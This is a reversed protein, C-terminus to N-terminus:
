NDFSTYIFYQNCTSQPYQELSNISVCGCFGKIIMIIVKTCPDLSKCYRLMDANSFCIHVEFLFCIVDCTTSHHCM